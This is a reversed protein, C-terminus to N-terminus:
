HINIANFQFLRFNSAKIAQKNIHENHTVNKDIAM